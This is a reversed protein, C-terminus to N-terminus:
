LERLRERIEKLSITGGLIGVGLVERRLVRQIEGRYQGDNMEVVVIKEHEAAAAKLEDELVPFMRVPKFLSHSERLPSVVRHTIGFAVILTDAAPNNQYEYFRYRAATDSMKAKM